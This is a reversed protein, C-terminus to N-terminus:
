GTTSTKKCKSRREYTQTNLCNKCATKRGDRLNMASHYESLPKTEGCMRCAKSDGIATLGKSHRECAEKAEVISNFGGLVQRQNQGLGFGMVYPQM